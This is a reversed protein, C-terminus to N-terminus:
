KSHAPTGITHLLRARWANNTGQVTMSELLSRIQRRQQNQLKRGSYIGLTYEIATLAKKPQNASQAAQALLMLDEFRPMPSLLPTLLSMAEKLLHPSGNMIRWHIRARLAEPFLPHTTAIKELEQELGSLSPLDEMSRARWSRIILQENAQLPKLIAPPSQGMNLQRRYLKLIGSRAEQNQPDIRLVNQFATFAQQNQGKAAYILAQTNRKVKGPELAAQFAAARSPQGHRLLQRVYAEPRTFQEISELDQHANLLQNVQNPNLSNNLVKPALSQFRNNLDSNAPTDGALELCARMTLVRSALLDQISLVGLESWDNPASKLASPASTGLDFSTPSAVLIIANRKPQFLEVHPFVGTATAIFTRLLEDNIFALGMWAVFVGDTELHDFATQFFEKTFLNASSSTWPHSPQSIIADFRKTTLRLASRADNIHLTLRPNQFPDDLRNPVAKNAAIITPEIEIVDVAKVSPPASNATIGAGFGIVLQNQIDPKVALSLMSLWRAVVFRGPLDWAKGIASEPLGNTTLRWSSPENKLLITGGRGVGYFGVQDASQAFHQSLPSHQLMQWPTTPPIWVVLLGCVVTLILTKFYRPKALLCVLLALVFSTAIALTALKAFKLMPLLFFGTLFAGAIAGVTNWTYIRASALAADEAHSALIRVALPFTAGIAITSPLMLLAAILGGRILYNSHSIVASITQLHGLSHFALLSLGGIALQVLAFAGVAQKQHKAWFSGIASGLAIGSLFTALMLAFAYISGGLLHSFLRTWIIEWSFSIAGSVLIIPQIWRSRLALPNNQSVANEGPAPAHSPYRALLAALPFLSINVAVALYITTGLGFKPLLWFATTLTGIAAGLANTMYLLGLRPGIQANKAIAWKALIPLTAGMFATPILLILFALAGMFLGSNLTTQADPLTPGAFLWVQLTGALSIAKPIALASLGIACELLGYALLPRKLRYALRGGISAGLALGGMYAALVMVLALETTGFVLSFQKGWATQYVLGSFGSLVFCLLLITFRLSM